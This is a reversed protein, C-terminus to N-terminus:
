VTNDRFIFTDPGAPHGPLPKICTYGDGNGDLSPIGAAEEENIGLDAVLVLEWKQSTSDPCGGVSKASAGTVPIALLVLTGLVLALMRRRM